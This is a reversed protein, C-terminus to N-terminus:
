LKVIVDEMALRSKPPAINYDNEADRYGIALAVDTVYGDLEVAFEKSVLETDIGEMPTSDINLRALTHMTNGLALYTQAKTWASTDGDEGTNLEVFAFAGFAGEKDEPKTRKDEIGKDIVAEYNARTYKPNHAFIIIHSATMVHPQNFQFKNAFTNHMRQKAADSEIVIFKWPQSNISSASLRMAEMIVALDAQSVKKSADFKKTTYRSSLDKIIQHTM